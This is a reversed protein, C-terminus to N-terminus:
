AARRKDLYRAVGELRTRATTCYRGELEIGIYRRGALAAAVSTSGSGSFPDLVIDGPKSYAKVLPSLIGVAKETPHAKNGTYEWEQISSVPAVPKQPQGKALM